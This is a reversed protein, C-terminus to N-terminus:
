SSKSTASAPLNIGGLDVQNSGLSLLPSNICVRYAGADRSPFRAHGPLQGLRPEQSIVPLCSVSFHFKLKRRCYPMRLILSCHLIYFFGYLFLRSHVILQIFQHVPRPNLLDDVGFAVMRVIQQTGMLCAALCQHLSKVRSRRLHSEPQHFAAPLIGHIHRVFFTEKGHQNGFFLYPRVAILHHIPVSIRNLYLIRVAMPGQDRFLVRFLKVCADMVGNVFFQSGMGTGQLSLLSGIKGDPRGIGHPDAHHSIEVAPVSTGMLHATKPVATDKFQEDGLHLLATKVFELYLGPASQSKQFRIGIAIGGLQPRVISRHHRFQAAELPLVLLKHLGPPLELAAISGDTDILHVHAREQIGPLAFCIGIIPLNRGFYHRIYLFHAIGMHLQHGDHFMRKVAGPAVLHDTIIGGSGPVAARLVEHIKHVFQVLRADTHDQVPHRGMEGPIGVAQGAKVAGAQIFVLVGSLAEMGMPSGQDVIVAPGLHGIIQDGISQEPYLFEVRITDAHVCHGAHQIQVITFIVPLPHGVHIPALLVQLGHLHDFVQIGNQFLAIGAHQGNRLLTGRKRQDGLIQVFATQSKIQLPIHTIHIIIQPIDSHIGIEATVMMSFQGEAHDIGVTLLELQHERMVLHHVALGGHCALHGAGSLFLQGIQPQGVGIHHGMGALLQQEHALFQPFKVLPVLIAPHLPFQQLHRLVLAHRFQILIQVMQVAPLRREM